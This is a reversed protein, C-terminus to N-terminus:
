GTITDFIDEKDSKNLHHILVIAINHKIALTQLDQLNLNDVEYSEFKGSAVSSEQRWINLTLKLDTM